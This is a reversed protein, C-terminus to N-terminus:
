CWNLRCTISKSCLEVRMSVNVVNGRTHTYIKHMKPFRRLPFGVKGSYLSLVRRLRLLWRMYIAHPSSFSWLHVHDTMGNPSSTSLVIFNISYHYREMFANLLVGFYLPSNDNWIVSGISWPLGRAGTQKCGSRLGMPASWGSLWGSPQYIWKWQHTPVVLWCLM